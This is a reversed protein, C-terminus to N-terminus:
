EKPNDSKVKAIAKYWDGTKDFKGSTMDHFLLDLQEGLQPYQRDRQYKNKKYEEVLREKETKIEEDTPLGTAGDKWKVKGDKEVVLYKDKALKIVADIFFIHEINSADKIEREKSM